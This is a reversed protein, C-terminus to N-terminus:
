SRRPWGPGGYAHLFILIARYLAQYQLVLTSILLPRQYGATYWVADKHTSLFDHLLTYVCVLSYFYFIDKAPRSKIIRDAEQQTYVVRGGRGDSQILPVGRKKVNEVYWRMYGDRAEVEELRRPLCAYIMRLAPYLIMAAPVVSPLLALLKHKTSMQPAVFEAFFTKQVWDMPSNGPVVANAVGVKALDDIIDVAVAGMDAATANAYHLLIAADIFPGQLTILVPRAYTKWDFIVPGWTRSSVDTDVTVNLAATYEEYDKACDTGMHGSKTATPVCSPLGGLQNRSGLYQYFKFFDVTKETKLKIMTTNFGETLANDVLPAFGRSCQWASSVFTHPMAASNIAGVLAPPDQLTIFYAHRAPQHRADTFFLLALLSASVGRAVWTTCGVIGCSRPHETKLLAELSISNIQGVDGKSLDDLTKNKRIRYKEASLLFEYIHLAQDRFEQANKPSTFLFGGNKQWLGASTDQSIEALMKATAQDLVGGKLIGYRGSKISLLAFKHNNDTIRDKQLVIYTDVGAPIICHLLAMMDESRNNLSKICKDFEELHAGKLWPHAIRTLPYGRANGIPLLQQALSGAQESNYARMAYSVFVFMCMATVNRTTEATFTHRGIVFFVDKAAVAARWARSPKKAPAAGVAPPPDDANAAAFRQLLRQVGTAAPQPPPAPQAGAPHIFSLMADQMISHYTPAVVNCLEYFTAANLLAIYMASWRPIAELPIAIFIVSWAFSFVAINLSRHWDVGHAITPMSHTRIQSAVALRTIEFGVPLLCALEFDHAAFSFACLGILLLSALSAENWVDAPAPPRIGRPRGDILEMNAHAIVDVLYDMARVILDFPTELARRARRAHGIALWATLSTPRDGSSTLKDFDAHHLQALALTYRAQEEDRTEEFLGSNTQLNQVPQGARVKAAKELLDVPVHPIDITHRTFALRGYIHQEDIITGILSILPASVIFGPTQYEPNYVVVM